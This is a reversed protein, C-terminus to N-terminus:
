SSYQHEALLEYTKKKVTDAASAPMHMEMLRCRVFCSGVQRQRLRATPEAGPLESTKTADNVTNSKLKTDYSLDIYSSEESTDSVIEREAAASFSFEIFGNDRVQTRWPSCIYGAAQLALRQLQNGAFCTKSCPSTVRRLYPSTVETLMSEYGKPLIHGTNKYGVGPPRNGVRVSDM